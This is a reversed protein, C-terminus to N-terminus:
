SVLNKQPPRKIDKFTGGHNNIYDWAHKYENYDYKRIETIGNYKNKTYFNHFRINGDKHKYGGFNNIIENFLNQETNYAEEKTRFWTSKHIKFGSIIGKKIEDKFRNYVDWKATIGSKWCKTNDIYFTVLYQKYIM